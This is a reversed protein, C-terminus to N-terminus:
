GTPTRSSATHIDGLRYRLVATENAVQRSLRLSPNEGRLHRLSRYRLIPVNEEGIYQWSAWVVDNSTFALTAVEIGPTALCRYLEQPDSIMKTRTRDNRKTLKGWVSNLCLIVLGRKAPNSGIADRDLQIGESAAFEIIYRDEDM